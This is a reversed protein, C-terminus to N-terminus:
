LANCYKCFTHLNIFDVNPKNLSIMIVTVCYTDFKDIFLIAVDM